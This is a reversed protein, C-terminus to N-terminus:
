RSTYFYERDIEYVEKLWELVMRGHKKPGVYLAFVCVLPLRLLLAYQMRAAVSPTRPNVGSEPFRRM